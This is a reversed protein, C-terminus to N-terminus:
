PAPRSTSSLRIARGAAAASRAGGVTFCGCGCVHREYLTILHTEVKHLEWGSTLYGGDKNSDSYGLM